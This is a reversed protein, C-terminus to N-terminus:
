DPCCIEVFRVEHPAVARTFEIADDGDVAPEGRKLRRADDGVHGDAVEIREAVHRPRLADATIGLVFVLGVHFKGHFLGHVEAVVRQEDVAADAAPEIM